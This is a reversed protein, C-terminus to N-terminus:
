YWVRKGDVLKWHKKSMNHQKGFNSKSIKQRTEESSTKGLHAERNKRKSEESVNHGIQSKSMNLKTEESKPKGKMSKSIKQKAEESHNFTLGVVGDGGITSNYGNNYSNRYNIQKIEATNLIDILEYKDSAKYENVVKYEFKDFGYKRIACHFHKNDTARKHELYRKRPYMTQGVYYKNNITNRFEYIIGKVM